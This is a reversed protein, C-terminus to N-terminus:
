VFTDPTFRYEASCFECTVVIEDDVTMDRREDASFRELMTHIREETCTCRDALPRPSFVRVGREHFLRFLLNDASIEPDILEHDEITAVLSRAETWADDEEPETAAEAGEPADGGPLDRHGLRDSAAPLFQAILGGARWAHSRGMVEAVALRVITPIQESQAFYRHAAEELSEGDLVVVGQYRNRSGGQDITMALHGKGLLEAPRADAALAGEDYRAYGRLTLLDAAGPGAG